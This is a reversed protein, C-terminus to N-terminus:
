NMCNWGLASARPLHRPDKMAVEGLAEVSPQFQHLDEHENLGGNIGVLQSGVM